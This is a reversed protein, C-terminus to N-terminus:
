KESAEIMAKAKAIEGVGLFGLSAFPRRKQSGNDACSTRV